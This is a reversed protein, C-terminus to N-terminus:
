DIKKPNKILYLNVERALQNLDNYTLDVYANKDHKSNIYIRFFDPGLQKIELNNLQYNFM